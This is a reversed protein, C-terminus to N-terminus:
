SYEFLGLRAATSEEGEPLPPRQKPSVWYPGMVITPNLGQAVSSVPMIGKADLVTIVDTMQWRIYAVPDVSPNHISDSVSSTTEQNVSVQQSLRTNRNLSANVSARVPGWGGGASVGLSKAVEEDTSSGAQMGSTVTYSVTRTENGALCLSDNQLAWYQERLVVAGNDARGFGVLVSAGDPPVIVTSGDRKQPPQPEVPAEAVSSTPIPIPGIDNPVNLVSWDLLVDKASASLAFVSVLAGTAEAVAKYYGAPPTGKTGGSLYGESGPGVSAPLEAYAQAPMNLNPIYDIVVSFPFDNKIQRNWSTQGGTWTSTGNLYDYCATEM